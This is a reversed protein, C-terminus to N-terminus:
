SKMWVFSFVCIKCCAYGEFIRTNSAHWITDIFIVTDVLYILFFNSARVLKSAMMALFQFEGLCMFKVIKEKKM